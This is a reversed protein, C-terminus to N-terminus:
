VESAEELQAFSKMLSNKYSGEFYQNVSVDNTMVSYWHRSKFLGQFVKRSLSENHSSIDM